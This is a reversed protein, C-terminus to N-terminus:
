FRDTAAITSFAYDLPRHSIRATSCTRPLFGPARDSECFQRMREHSYVLASESIRLCITNSQRAM